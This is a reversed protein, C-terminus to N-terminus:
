HPPNIYSIPFSPRVLTDALAGSVVGVFAQLIYPAITFAAIGEIDIGFTQNLFFFSSSIPPLHSHTCPHISEIDIPGFTQYNPTSPPTTSQQWSNMRTDKQHFTGQQLVHAALVLPRVVRRREDAARHPDGMDTCTYFSKADMCKFASPSVGEQLEHLCAGM